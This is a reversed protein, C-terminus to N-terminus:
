GEVAPAAATLTRAKDQAFCLDLIRQIDAARRFDPDGNVGTNCAIVFREYTTAVPPTEVDKWIQGDIDKEGTCIRLSSARGDTKVELAGATGFLALSLDNAHGTAFRTATITGLAGNAFEATMVASDNADLPYDGIKDGPAKHFTKLRSEVTAVNSDAAFSAFDVIHVGVDGLVGKSGHEESLRWLWRSETRWDGWQKGVLWSQLYSAEFHRIEGIAGSAVLERAKQLAPSNRYTFNVMNIVGKAEATEAMELALPYNTALPKECFVHKGAELLRMTTPYHVADPTVNAAADFGGWAIASELDPFLNEIGFQKGFAARRDADPEVAAVVSSNPAAKFAAAHNTAMSGTGLILIKVM